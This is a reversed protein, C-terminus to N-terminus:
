AGRAKNFFRNLEQQREQYAQIIAQLKKLHEDTITCIILDREGEFEEAFTIKGELAAQNKKEGVSLEAGFSMTDDVQFLKSQVDFFVEKDAIAILKMASKKVLQAGNKGSASIDLEITEFAKDGWQIGAETIEGLGLEMASEQAASLDGKGWAESIRKRPMQHNKSGFNVGSSGLNNTWEPSNSKGGSSLDTNIVDGRRDGSGSGADYSVDGLDHSINPIDEFSVSGGEQEEGTLLSTRKKAKPQEASEEEYKVNAEMTKQILEVVSMAHKSNENIKLKVGDECIMRYFVPKGQDYFAFTPYKSSFAWLNRQWTFEPQRGFFIWRGQQKKFPAAQPNQPDRLKWEWGQEGQYQTEVKEWMGMAPGPGLFEVLWRGMIFRANKKNTIIWYECDHEYPKQWILETAEKKDAEKQANNAQAQARGQEDRVIKQLSQYALMLGNKLKLNLAKINVKYDLIEMVGKTKLIMMVKPHNIQSLVIVRMVGMNIADEHRTLYAILKVLEEKETLTLIVVNQRSKCTISEVQDVKEVRAFGIGTQAELQKVLSNIVPPHAPHPTCVVVQAKDSVSAGTQTSEAASM